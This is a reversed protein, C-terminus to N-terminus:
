AAATARPLSEEGFLEKLNQFDSVGDYFVSTPIRYHDALRRVEDATWGGRSGGLRASLTAPAMGIANCLQSQTEHHWGMLARVTASIPM